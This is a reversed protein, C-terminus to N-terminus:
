WVDGNSETAGKSSSATESSFKVFGAVNNDAPYSGEGERITVKVDIAKGLVENVEPVKFEGKVDYDLAGFFSQTKWFDGAVYLPIYAFLRRNEYQGETVRLQVNWRPKGANNGGRVEEAKAEFITCQYTGAPIPGLDTSPASQVVDAPVSITFSM